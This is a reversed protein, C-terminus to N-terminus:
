CGYYNEASKRACIAEFFDNTRKLFIREGEVTINAQYSARDKIWYVGQLGKRNRSNLSQGCIRLNEKRNDFCNQNRHDVVIWTDTNDPVSLLWRHLRDHGSMFYVNGCRSKVARWTRDQIRKWDELDIIIVYEPTIHYLTEAVM